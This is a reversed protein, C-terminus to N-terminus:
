GWIVVLPFVVIFNLSVLIKFIRERGEILHFARLSYFPLLPIFYRWYFDYNIAVGILLLGTITLILMDLERNEKLIPLYRPLFFVLPSMLLAYNGLSNLINLLPNAPNAVVVEPNYLYLTSGLFAKKIGFYLAVSIMLGAVPLYKKKRLFLISLPLTTLISSLKILTVPINLIFAVKDWNKSYSYFISFATFAILIEPLVWYVSWIILPNTVIFLMGFTEVSENEGSLKKVLYIIGMFFILNLLFMGYYGLHYTVLVYLPRDWFLIEQGKMYGYQDSLVPNHMEAMLIEFLVIFVLLLPYFESKLKKKYGFLILIILIYVASILFLFLPPFLTYDEIPSFINSQMLKHYLDM